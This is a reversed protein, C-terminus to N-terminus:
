ATAIGAATPGLFGVGNLELYEADLESFKAAKITELTRRDLHCGDAREVQLPTSMIQSAALAQDTESVVHEHFLLKGGPKLIRKFEAVSRAPDTVSCLTLTCLVADAVGSELPLAESVGHVVRLSNGKSKDLLGSREESTYRQASDRAYGEMSDNPDVGIIDMNNPAQFEGLKSSGKLFIANPFSGMGVDVVVAGKEPLTPLLKQFYKKKTKYAAKEYDAMGYAMGRAFGADKLYNRPLDYKQLLDSSPTVLKTSEFARAVYAAGTCTALGIGAAGLLKMFLRRGSGATKEGAKSSADADRFSSPLRWASDGGEPNHPARLKAATGRPPVWAQGSVHFHYLLLACGAVVYRSARSNM